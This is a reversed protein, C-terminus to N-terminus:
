QYPQREAYRAGRALVTQLRGIVEDTTIRQMLAASSILKHNMVDEPTTHQLVENHRQYPGVRSLRTPGFLAILPRDYGVAIHLAASDNAIVLRSREICAMLQGINTTGVLDTVGGDNSFRDLLSQCQEREGRGAVVVVGVEARRLWDVVQTFREIPWQKGPWRSTPAILVYDGKAWTANSIWEQAAPPTYLRMDHVPPIGIYAAIALMRDVTHMGPDTKARHTYGLWGLERANALGVRLPAATAYAMAASRALGQLDLVCDYSSSRLTRRFALLPRPDLYRAAAKIAKKPFSVVSTLMPHYAIIDEFGQEVLWHIEAKPHARRVAALVPVSRAVDGLASPRILLINKLTSELVARYCSLCESPNSACIFAYQNFKSM